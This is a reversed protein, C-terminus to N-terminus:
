TDELSVWELAQGCDPCYSPTHIGLLNLKHSCKCAPCFPYCERDYRVKQPVSKVIARTIAKENLVIEDKVGNEIAISQIEGLIASETEKNRKINISHVMKLVDM